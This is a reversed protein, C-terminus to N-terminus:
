YHSFNVSGTDSFENVEGLTNRINKSILGFSQSNYRDNFLNKKDYCTLRRTPELIRDSGRSANKLLVHQTMKTKYGKVFGPLKDWFQLKMTMPEVKKKIPSLSPM